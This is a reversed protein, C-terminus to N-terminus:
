KSSVCKFGQKKLESELSKFTTKSNIKVYSVPMLEQNIKDIKKFDILEFDIYGNVKFSNDSIEYTYTFGSMGNTNVIVPIKEEKVYSVQEKYEDTLATYKYISELYTIKNKKYTIKYEDTYKYGVDEATSSCNVLKTIGFVYNVLIFILVLGFIFGIIFYLIIKKNSIKEKNEKKKFEIEKKIDNSKQNDSLIKDDTVLENDIIGINEKFSDYSLDDINNSSVNTTPEMISSTESKNTYNDIIVDQKSSVNTNIEIFDSGFIDDLASELDKDKNDM